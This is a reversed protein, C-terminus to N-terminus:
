IRSSGSTKANVRNFESMKRTTNQVMRGGINKKLSAKSSINHERVKGDLYAWLNEIPNRYKTSKGQEHLYLITKRESFNLEKGKQANKIYRVVM